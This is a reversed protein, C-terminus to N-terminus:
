SKKAFFFIVKLYLSLSLLFIHCRSKWIIQFIYKGWDIECLKRWLIIILSKKEFSSKNFAIFSKRSSDMTRGGPSQALLFRKLTWSIWSILCFFFFIFSPLSLKSFSFSSTESSFTSVTLPIFSHIWLASYINKTGFTAMKFTLIPFIKKMKQLFKGYKIIKWLISYWIQHLVWFFLWINCFNPPFSSFKAIKGIIKIAAKPVLFTWIYHLACCM